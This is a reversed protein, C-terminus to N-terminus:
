CWKLVVEELLVTTCLHKSMKFHELLIHYHLTKTVSRRRHIRSFLLILTTKFAFLNSLSLKLRIVYFMYCATLFALLWLQALLHLATELPARESFPSFNTLFGLVLLSGLLCYLGWVLAQQSPVLTNAIDLYMKQWKWLEPTMKCKRFAVSVVFNIYPNTTVTTNRRTQSVECRNM